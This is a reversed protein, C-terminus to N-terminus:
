TIGIELILQRKKLGHEIQKAAKEIYTLKCEFFATFNVLNNAKKNKNNLKEFM